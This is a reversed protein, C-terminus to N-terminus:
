QSRARRRQPRKAVSAAPAPARFGVRYIAGNYDDSVLLSGDRMPLVDAPRGLYGEPGIFGTLFPEIARVSGDPNLFAVVVDAGIMKTRNWSGHRAIFIANRFAPPFGSGTYFRMGLAATHPGLLAIPKEFEDCSRGWGFETDPMDGQHCFPAGFHRKGNRTIRNLEDNPIDESMLDRGNETFYLEGSAPHWDFGLTNRVGRAVVEMASGDRNMRRIQAHTDAGTMCNNCPMGIAVYLKGDPGVAMYRWGHHEESPLNDVVLVPEPPNDLRAEIDDYRWIKSIEAVYLSGNHFAIGNPRHLGQAITKVERRGNREVVAYVNGALRSGVFVTGRDGLRLTRANALGSAYLEVTFGRPVSLKALPLRDPPTPTSPPPIPALRRAAESQPVYESATASPQVASESSRQPSPAESRGPAAPAGESGSRPAAPRGAAPPAGQAEGAQPPATDPNPAAPAEAPNPAAPAAGPTQPAVQTASTPPRSPGDVAPGTESAAPGSRPGAPGATGPQTTPGPHAEPAPEVAPVPRSPPPAAGSPTDNPGPQASLVGAAALLLAGALSPGIAFVSRRM